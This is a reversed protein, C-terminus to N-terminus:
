RTNGGVRGEVWVGIAHFKGGAAHSFSQEPCPRQRLIRPRAMLSPGSVFPTPGVYVFQSPRAINIHEQSQPQVAGSQEIRVNSQVSIITDLSFWLVDYM